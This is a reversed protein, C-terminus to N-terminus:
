RVFLRSAYDMLSLADLDGTVCLASKAGDPWRWFRVLPSLSSEIYNVLEVENSLQLIKQLDLYIGCLKATESTDLIYGQEKLFLRITGPVNGAVGIFPRPNAPVTLTRTQLLLYRDSWITGLGGLELDRVLITARPSGEFTLKL